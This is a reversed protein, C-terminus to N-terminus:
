LNNQEVRTIDQKLFQPKKQAPTESIPVVHCDLTAQRKNSVLADSHDARVREQHVAAYYFFADNLWEDTVMLAIRKYISATTDNSHNVIYSHLEEDVACGSSLHFNFIGLVKTGDLQVSKPHLGSFVKGQCDNSKCKYYISHLYRHSRLRYLIMPCGCWGNTPFVYQNSECNPCCAMHDKIVRHPTWVTIDKIYFSEV